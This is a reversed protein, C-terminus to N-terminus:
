RDRAAAHHAGAIDDRRLGLRTRALGGLRPGLGIVIAAATGAPRAKRARRAEGVWRRLLGAADSRLDASLPVASAQQSFSETELRSIAGGDGDRQDITRGLIRGLDRLAAALPGAIERAPATAARDLLEEVRRRAARVEAADERQSQTRLQYSRAALLALPIAYLLGVLLWLAAGALPRDDQHAASSLALDVDVSSSDFEAAGPM